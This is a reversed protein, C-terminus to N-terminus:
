CFGRVMFAQAFTQSRSKFKQAQKHKLLLAGSNGRSFWTGSCTEEFCLGPKILLNELRVFMQAKWTFGVGLANAHAPMRSLLNTKIMGGGRGTRALIGDMGQFQAKWPAKGINKNIFVGAPM